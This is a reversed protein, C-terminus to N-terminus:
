HVYVLRFYASKNVPIFKLRLVKNLTRKFQTADVESAEQRFCCCCRDNTEQQFKKTQNASLYSSGDNPNSYRVLNVCGFSGEGLFRVFEEKSQIIQMKAYHVSVLRFYASKNVPMFKLRLIKNLTRKFQTAKTPLFRLKLPKKDSVAVVDTTPKKNSSRRKI